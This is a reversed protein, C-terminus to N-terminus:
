SAGRRALEPSQVRGPHRQRVRRQSDPAAQPHADLTEEPFSNLVYLAHRLPGHMTTAQAVEVYVHVGPPIHVVQTGVQLSGLVLLEFLAGNVESPSEVAAVDVHLCNGAMLRLEQLRPVLMRRTIGDGVSLTKIRAGRTDAAHAHVFETKGLGAAPATVVLVQRGLHAMFARLEQAPKPAVTHLPLSLEALNKDMPVVFALLATSDPHRRHAAELLTQTLYARREYAMEYLGVVCFLGHVPRDPHFVRHAFTHLESQQTTRDCILLRHRRLGAGGELQDYLAVVTGYLDRQNGYSTVFMLSHEDAHPGTLRLPQLPATYPEPIGEFV